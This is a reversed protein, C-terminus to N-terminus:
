LLVAGKYEWSYTLSGDPWFIPQIGNGVKNTKPLCDSVCVSLGDYDFIPSGHPLTRLYHGKRIIEDTIKGANEPFHKDVWKAVGVNDPNIPRTIPTIKLQRAGWSNCLAVVRNFDEISDIYDKMLLCCVRVSFGDRALNGILDELDIVRKSGYIEHNREKDWHAVSLAVHTLGSKQWNTMDANTVYGEENDPNGIYGNSIAIGNTQIEIFPFEYKELAMLYSYVESKYITPEGKGTFLVTTTNSSKAFRCAAAFSHANRDWNMLHQDTEREHLGSTNTCRSVCGPCHANCRPSVMDGIVISFASIPTVIGPKFMEERSPNSM